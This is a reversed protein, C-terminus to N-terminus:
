NLKEWEAQMDQETVPMGSDRVMGTFLEKAYNEM